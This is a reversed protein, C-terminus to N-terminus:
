NEFVGFHVEWGQPPALAYLMEIKLDLAFFSMKVFREKLVTRKKACM